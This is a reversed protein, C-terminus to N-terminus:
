KSRDKGHRASYHYIDMELKSMRNAETCFDTGAPADESMTGETLVRSHGYACAGKHDPLITVTENFAYPYNCPRDSLLDCGLTYDEADSLTHYALTALIDKHSGFRNKDFVMNDHAKYKEPVYMYFPVTRGFVLEQPNSTYAIGHQNHDGTAVIFTRDAIEPDSKLKTLFKGLQDNSYHFAAFVAPTNEFTFRKTEEETLPIEKPQYDGPVQYPPHNTISMMIMLIPKDGHEEKLVKYAAKFLFEDDIGWTDSTAEPFWERVQNMEIVQDIGQKKLFATYDRWGGPGSTLYIVKYGKKQYARFSNLIYERTSYASTSLNMDPAGVFLRTLSASTGNGGSVFNHLVFDENFHRRLEGYLDRKEPIDYNFMHWGMSEMVTVVIDPQNQELFENKDTHIRLPAFLDEKTSELGLAKFDAIIQDESVKPIKDQLNYWKWAWHLATPGNPVAANVLEDNSVVANLQRLPFTGFSGRCLMGFLAIFVFCFAARMPTKEPVRIHKELFSAVKATLWLYLACAVALAAMGTFFPYDKVVTVAVAIPDEKFPAFFFVDIIRDYTKFYFYHIVTMGALWVFVLLNMVVYFRRYLASLKRTFCFVGLVLPLIYALCVFKVDFRFSVILFHRFEDSSLKAFSEEAFSKIFCYRGLTFILVGFIIGTTIRAILYRIHEAASEKSHDFIKLM